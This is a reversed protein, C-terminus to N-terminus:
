KTIFVILTIKLEYSFSQLFLSKWIRSSCVILGQLPKAKSDATKPFLFNGSFIFTFYSSYALGRGRDLRNKTREMSDLFGEKYSLNNDLTYIFVRYNAGGM